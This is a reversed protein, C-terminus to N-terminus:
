MPGYFKWSSKLDRGLAQRTLSARIMEIPIRNERLVADHFARNTMKGSDVLEKHLARLQLGGLMYAAQYLPGYSGDFSRRVEAAANDREHGVKQVLFDICEEPTMKELHFSLSFIIRACRHMRWFLAGVRNEPTDNFNLDWLLMEWYLSWGETLFSTSFLSRYPRYRAAMFGQLHHGPILEHFVTAHSFPINNGRMSMLKQEHTMSSTPYSVSIVEGGTFFPNMLQREPSMMEMRFTERALEPITVLDHKELFDIAEVALKRILEPQKGPEVHMTKVHEVAKLWDDGFGLERSAKKMEAECWAYEKNAIAVLQEPTYPIMEYALEALLADRGIPNGIITIRDGQRRGGFRESLFSAYSQLAKDLEKYPAEVWWTFVPDYGNYFNFWGRLANRLREVNAAARNAVSRKVKQAGEKKQSAEFSKQAEAVQKTLSALLTASQKGDAFKLQRRDEDLAQITKAFPALPEAEAAATTELELRRLERALYNKFLVYDVKGDHSLSNFDLADLHASWETYLKNMRARQTPSADAGMAARAGGGGGFGGPGGGGAFYRMLSTRDAAFREIMEGLESDYREPAAAVAVGACALLFLIPLHKSHTM